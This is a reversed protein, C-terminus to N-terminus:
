AIDDYGPLVETSVPPRVWIEADAPVVDAGASAAAEAVERVAAPTLRWDRTQHGAPCTIWASEGDATLTLGTGVGCQRCTMPVRSHHAPGRDAYVIPGETRVQHLM